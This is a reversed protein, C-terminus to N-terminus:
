LTERLRSARTQPDDKFRVGRPLNDPAPTTAAPNSELRGAVEWGAILHTEPAIGNM